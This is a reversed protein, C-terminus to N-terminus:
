TDFIPTYPESPQFTIKLDKDNTQSKNMMKQPSNRYRNTGVNQRYSKYEGLKYLVPVVPKYIRQELIKEQLM